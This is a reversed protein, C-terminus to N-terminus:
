RACRGAVIARAEIAEESLQLLLCGRLAHRLAREGLSRRVEDVVLADNVAVAALAHEPLDEGLEGSAHRRIEPHLVSLLM